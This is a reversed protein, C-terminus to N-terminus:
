KRYRRRANARWIASAPSGRDRYSIQRAHPSFATLSGIDVNGLGDGYTVMFSEQSLWPKLRLIRGGTMTDLGTDIVGIRWDVANSNVIRRSGDRLDLFYDSSHILYNHFYEKIMEGKYGCAVLFEKYGHNAYISMLHWLIPKGGIEVMPKPRTLTEESLRTGRGGALIVTKM